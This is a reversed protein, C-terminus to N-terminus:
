QRGVLVAIVPTGSASIAYPIESSGYLALPFSVGALLPYGNVATVGPGGLYITIAADINQIAVPLPDQLTGTLAAIQSAGSGVVLLPTATANNTAIQFSKLAM